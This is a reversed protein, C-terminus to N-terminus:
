REPYRRPRQGTSRVGSLPTEASGEPDEKRKRDTKKESGRRFSGWGVGAMGRAGVEVRKRQKM